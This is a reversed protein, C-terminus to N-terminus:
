YTSSVRASVGNQECTFLANTTRQHPQYLSFHFHLPESHLKSNSSQADKLERQIGTQYGHQVRLKGLILTFPRRRRHNERCSVVTTRHTRNQSQQVSSDVLLHQASSCVCRKTWLHFRM